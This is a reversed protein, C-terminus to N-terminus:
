SFSIIRYNASDAFLARVLANNLAHGSRVGEFHAKLPAGALALDGIADLIKHRVFENSFNLLDANIVQDGEIALTNELNAGLGLGMKHLAELEHVFGFTRAPAIDRRFGEPSFVFHYTQRGIVSSAFEIEFDYTLAAAPSLVARAEGHTVEVRRVIEITPRPGSQELVGAKDILELYGLASGELIPPEPGDLSVLLDDIGCGAAAAMLHEIVGVKVGGEEIATGLKTDSVRDYRAPIEAGGLDTRKFVIGKGSVAPSLTMHVHAGSHLAIGEATVEQAITRRTM